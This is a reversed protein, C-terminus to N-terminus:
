RRGDPRADIRPVGLQWQTGITTSELKIAMQRGRARVYIQPTFQQVIYERTNTYNQTSVVAPNNSQGYGTGPDQRPLLTLNVSPNNAYSGTFNVDPVVRWVFGFNNGDGIDFDSSQVYADIPSPPNTTGDDVGEEHYVLLSGYATAMPNQRLPSYLWSTRGVNNYSNTQGYYWTQDLYNYIVYSDVTNSNTSCYYWVIENYAENTGAFVQNSQSLNINDFIYQRVACPLTSVTGSYIYFKNYGMWYTINNVSVIANPGMISMNDGLIQFGWVYPPGLYQMSYIASDTLILIEQRTQVATVIQSGQSLRYSGAQNTASPLWTGANQQDSWRVALPDLVTEFQAGLVTGSPDNCGFVIVFDSSDSVIVYNVLNPCTSDVNFTGASTTISGGPVMTQARDYISPNSNVAWYYLAGGSPNIILDQGYNASSWLRLQVGIGLGQPASLGWGTSTYGTDVGGWGGAGWGVATTYIDSGTTIQYTGVTASGGQTGSSTAAVPAQITYTTAGTIAIVQFEANLYTATLTADTSTAGSFTVFDNAQAGNGSNTVTIIKSGATTTFTVAGASTTYRIPTVDNFAGGIGNQIYYKLNTGLGLLSYGTLNLWAWLNRCVGWFSAPYSPAPNSPPKLASTTQGGDATWGGIKEPYGSRFRINNCDFWGGENALSTAERNVGPRFQLKQLPM